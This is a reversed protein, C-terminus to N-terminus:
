AQTPVLFSLDWLPQPSPSASGWGATRTPGGALVSFGHPPSTVGEWGRKQSRGGRPCLYSSSVVSCVRVPAEPIDSWGGPSRHTSPPGNRLHNETLRRPNSAAGGAAAAESDGFRRSPPRPRLRFASAAARVWLEDLRLGQRVVRAAAGARPQSSAELGQPASTAPSSVRGAGKGENELRNRTEGM